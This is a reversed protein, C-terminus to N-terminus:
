LNVGAKDFASGGEPLRGDPTMKDVAQPLYQSLQSLLDGRPMNSQQSWQDIQQSGFVQELQQPSVQQNEGHGVWSNAVGGMGAQQFRGILGGLGGMGGQQPQGGGMLGGLMGGGQQQGGGMLGGLMGGIGGSQQGGGGLLSGLIGGMPSSQSNGGLLGGLVSNLLSM